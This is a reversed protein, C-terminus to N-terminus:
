GEEIEAGCEDCFSQGVPVTHDWEYGCGGLEEQQIETLDDGHYPVDVPFEGLSIADDLAQRLVPSVERSTYEGPQHVLASGTWKWGDCEAGLSNFTRIDDRGHIKMVWIKTTTM